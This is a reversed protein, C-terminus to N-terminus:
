NHIKQNGKKLNNLIKKAQESYIGDPYNELYKELEPITKAEKAKEWGSHERKINAERILFISATLLVAILILALILGTLGRNSMKDRKSSTKGTGREYKRVSGTRENKIRYLLADILRILGECDRVRESPKKAIMKNLLPQINEYKRPLEPVPGQAHKMALTILDDTKYPATGTLIEYLVIGLSYIDSREDVKKARMQEPSMYKPTGVSMGTRTLNSESRLAKVIGFDLLILTGDDRFMVNDPKIDRHIFGKKHAY